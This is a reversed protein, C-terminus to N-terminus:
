TVAARARMTRRIVMAVDDPDVPKVLFADAGVQALRRWEGPGGAATLVVIPTRASDALSRLHKTVRMGDAEPMELDVLVVSYAHEEFAEIAREGDAVLDIRAEPFRSALADSSISGRM